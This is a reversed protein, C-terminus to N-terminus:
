KNAVLDKMDSYETKNLITAYSGVPFNIVRGVSYDEYGYIKGYSRMVDFDELVIGVTPIVKENWVFLYLNEAIQYYYCRDTDCLGKENGAICHWSYSHENLYIHEYMDKSSYVFQVRKGVLDKTKPHKTTNDTFPADVSVHEFYTKVATLPLAQEARKLMPILLEETAPLVGTIITAIQQKTELIISLSKSDGFSVIFNIFYINERPKVATYSCIMKEHKGNEKKTWKLTEIDVFSIEAKSGNEYYFCFQEGILDSTPQMMNESFGVSLEGVSIFEQNNSGINM